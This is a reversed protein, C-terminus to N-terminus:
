NVHATKWFREVIEDAEEATKCTSLEITLHEIKTISITPSFNYELTEGDLRLLVRYLKTMRKRLRQAQIAHEINKTQRYKELFHLMRMYRGYRTLTTKKAKRKRPKRYRLDDLFQEHTYDPYEACLIQFAFVPEKRYLRRAKRIRRINTLREPTFPKGM